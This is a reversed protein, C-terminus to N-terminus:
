PGEWSRGPGCRHAQRFWALRDRTPNLVVTEKGCPEHTITTTGGPGPVVLFGDISVVAKDSV